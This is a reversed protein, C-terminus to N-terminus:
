DAVLMDFVGISSSFEEESNGSSDQCNEGDETEHERYKSNNIGHIFNIPVGSLREVLDFGKFVVSVVKL